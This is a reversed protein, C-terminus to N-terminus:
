PRTARRALRAAIAEGGERATRLPAIVDFPLGEAVDDRYLYTRDAWASGCWDEEDHAPTSGILVVFRVQELPARALLPGLLRPPVHRAFLDHPEGLHQEGLEALPQSQGLRFLLLQIEDGFQARIATATEHAVSLHQQRASADIVLLGYSQGAALNPLGPGEGRGLHLMLSEGLHVLHEPAPGAGEGAIPQSWETLLPPLQRRETPSLGAIMQFLEAPDSDPSSVLRRAWQRNSAWRRAAFLVALASARGQHALPAALRLLAAHSAVPPPPAASGYLYFLARAAAGGAMRHREDDNALWALLIDVCSPLHVASQWCFATIIQRLPDIQPAAPPEDLATVLAELRSGAAARGAIELGLDPGVKRWWAGADRSALSQALQRLAAEVLLAAVQDPRQAPSLELRAVGDPIAPTLGSADLSALLVRGAWPSQGLDELDLIPGAAILIVISGHPAGLAELVPVALLPAHDSEAPVAAARWTSRGLVGHIVPAAAALETATLRAIHDRRARERRAGYSSDLLMVVPDGGSVEVALGDILRARAIVSSAIAAVPAEAGAWLEGLLKVLWQRETFSVQAVAQLLARHVRRDWGNALTWQHLAALLERLVSRDAGLAPAILELLPLHREVTLRPPRGAQTSVPAGILRQVALEGVFHQRSTPPAELWSRALAVGDAVAYRAIQVLAYVVADIQEIEMQRLQNQLRRRRRVADNQSQAASSAGEHRRASHHTEREAQQEAQRRAAEHFRNPYTALETLSARLKVLAASAQRAQSSGPDAGAMGAITPYVRWIAASATWMSDPDQSCAWIWIQEAVWGLRGPDAYVLGDLVHGATAAIGSVQHAALTTLLPTLKRQQHAGIRGIAIGLTQRSLAAWRESQQTIMPLIIQECLSWLLPAYSATQRLVEETLASNNFQISGAATIHVRTRDRLEAMGRARPDHLGELGEQRLQRTAQAYLEDILDQEAGAFVYVLLTYLRENATLDGFWLRAAEPESDGVDYALRVIAERRAEPPLGRLGICFLDIASPRHLTAQLLEGAVQDVQDRLAAPHQDLIGYYDLHSDCVAQLFPGGAPNDRPFRTSLYHLGLDELTQEPWTTTLVLYCGADALLALLAADLDDRGVGHEFARECIYIGGPAPGEALILDLLTSAGLAEPLILKVPPLPRPPERSGSLSSRRCLAWFSIGYLDFAHRNLRALVRYRAARLNEDEHPQRLIDALQADLNYLEDLLEDREIPAGAGARGELIERLLAIGPAYVEHPHRQAFAGEQHGYLEPDLPRGHGSLSLGLYLACTFRGSHARGTVVWLRRDPTIAGRQEFYHIPPVFVARVKRVVAADVTVALATPAEDRKGSHPMGVAARLEDLEEAHTTDAELSESLLDEEDAGGAAWPADAPPASGAPDAVKAIAAEEDTSM